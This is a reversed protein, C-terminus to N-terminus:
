PPPAPKPSSWEAPSTPSKPPRPPLAAPPSPWPTFRSPPTAPAPSTSSKAPGPRLTTSHSAKKSCPWATNASPSSCNGPTGNKGSDTRWPRPPHRAPDALPVDGPDPIGAAEFAEKRNPKVTTAQHWRLPNGPNPDVTVPIGRATVRQTVADVLEQTLFGKAYDEIIVADVEPLKEDLWALARAVLAPSPAKITERDIRAVQQGRAVVRTKVITEHEESALLGSTDIGHGTLLDHLQATLPGTGTVGLVHVKGAFPALNRAVNAAGGPYADERTVHVVPVPAEPSIRSVNGRIFRDLMVDGVVLVRRTRCAALIAPLFDRQMVAANRDAGGSACSSDRVLEGQM